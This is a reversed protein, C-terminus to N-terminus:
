GQNLLFSPGKPLIAIGIDITLRFFFISFLLLKSTICVLKKAEVQLNPKSKYTCFTTIQMFLIFQCGRSTMSQMASVICLTASLIRPPASVIRLAASMIPPAASMICTLHPPYALILTVGGQIAFFLNRKFSDKPLKICKSLM